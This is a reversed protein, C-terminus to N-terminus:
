TCDSDAVLQQQRRGFHIMHPERSPRFLEPQSALASCPFAVFGEILEELKFNGMRGNEESYLETNEGM